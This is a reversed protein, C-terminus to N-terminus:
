RLNYSLGLGLFINYMNFPIAKFGNKFIPSLGTTLNVDFGLRENIMRTAGLEIGADWRRIDKNFDFTAKTITVKAGTEEHWIYGDTADGSFKANFLCSLYGGGYLRLKPSVTYSIKLPITAYSNLMNTKNTGTFKGKFVGVNAGSSQVVESYLNRVDASVHMGKSEVRIGTMWGLRGNIPSYIEYSIAPSFAPYWSKVSVGYPMSFPAASGFNFSAKIRQEFPLEASASEVLLLLVLLPFILRRM